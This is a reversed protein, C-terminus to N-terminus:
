FGIRRAVKGQKIECEAKIAKLWEDLNDFPAFRHRRAVAAFDGPTLNRLQAIRDQEVDTLDPLSLKNVQEQAFKIAQEPKLYNFHLKLDFRRLAAPDLGDMLNTSVVLLGEFKEIQTLMENVQSREWSRQGNERAFLFTDIEDFVLVMNNEKAQAFAQAIKKETGGVYKDLLDSGQCILVSMGLEQGLWNAWATKGTGPPGYCCIRGRKTRKLGETIKYIDDNCAVWDLNYSIKGEVLPEIKKFGQSKLMQNFWNLTKEAFDQQSCDSYAQKMVTLGRTIIAPSLAKVQSFHRIYDHSLQENVISRILKEKHSFPLDPMEFVLDFRRLYANDICSVSNSLWIMPVDNNELFQNVWAKNEQAVSREMFSSAFVDEIEDFIIVASKDQLLRQALRCNELRRQGGLVDDDEDMYAMTYSSVNLVESLLGALETKGTGPLGYILINTGKKANDISWKLHSLMLEYTPKIHEFHSLSLTPKETPLTCRALLMEETLPQTLFDDFDLTKGWNLYEDFRDPSRSFEILGYAFLKQKKSFVKRVDDKSLSLVDAVIEIVRSLNINPLYLTLDRMRKEMKLHFVFRFISKEAENLELIEGLKEINQYAMKWRESVDESFNTEKYRAQLLEKVLPRINDINEMEPPLGLATAIDDDRWCSERFIESFCKHEFLLKLMLHEAYASVTPPNLQYQNSM